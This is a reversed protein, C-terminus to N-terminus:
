VNDNLDLLTQDQRFMLRSVNAAVTPGLMVLRQENVIEHEHENSYTMVRSKIVVNDLSYHPLLVLDRRTEAFSQPQSLM